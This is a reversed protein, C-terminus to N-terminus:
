AARWASPVVSRRVFRVALSVFGLGLFRWCRFWATKPHADVENLAMSRPGPLPSTNYCKGFGFPWLVRFASIRGM